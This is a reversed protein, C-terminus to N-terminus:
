CHAFFLRKSQEKSGARQEKSFVTRVVGGKRKENTKGTESRNGM